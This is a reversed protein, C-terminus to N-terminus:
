LYLLMERENVRVGEPFTDRLWGADEPKNAKMRLIASQREEFSLTNFDHVVRALWDLRRAEVQQDMVDIQYKRKDAVVVVKVPKGSLVAGSNLCAVTPGLDPVPDESNVLFYEGALFAQHYAKYRYLMSNVRAEELRRWEESKWLTQAYHNDFKRLFLDVRAQLCEEVYARGPADLGGLEPLKHSVPIESSGVRFKIEGGASLRELWRSSETIPVIDSESSKSPSSPAELVDDVRFQDASADSLFLWCSVALALAGVLLLGSLRLRARM